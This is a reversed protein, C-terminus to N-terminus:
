RGGGEDVLSKARALYGNEVKKATLEDRILESVAELSGLRCAVNNLSSILDDLKNSMETLLRKVEIFSSENRRSCLEMCKECQDIKRYYAMGLVIQKRDEASEKLQTDHIDLRKGIVTIQSLIRGIGIMTIIFFIVVPWIDGIINTM